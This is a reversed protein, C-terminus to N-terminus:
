LVFTVFRWRRPSLATVQPGKLDSELNILGDENDKDDDIDSEWESDGEDGEQLRAFCPRLFLSSAVFRIGPRGPRDERNTRHLPRTGQFSNTLFAISQIKGSSLIEIAFAAEGPFPTGM